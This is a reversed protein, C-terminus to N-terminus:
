LRLRDNVVADIQELMGRLVDAALLNVGHRRRVDRFHMPRDAFVPLHRCVADDFTDSRDVAVSRSTAEHLATIVRARV